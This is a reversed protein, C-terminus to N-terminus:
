YYYTCYYYDYELDFIITCRLAVCAKSACNKKLTQVTMHVSSDRDWVDLVKGGKRRYGVLQDCIDFFVFFVKM